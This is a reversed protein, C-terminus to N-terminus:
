SSQALGGIAASDTYARNSWTVDVAWLPRGRTPDVCVLDVAREERGIRWRDYRLRPAGVPVAM